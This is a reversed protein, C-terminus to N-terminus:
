KKDVLIMVSYAQYRIWKNSGTPLSDLKVSLGGYKMKADKMIANHEPSAKWADVIMKALRDEFTSDTSKVNKNIINCIEGLKMYGSGGAAAYRKDFTELGKAEQNHSLFGKKTQLYAAQTEAGKACPSHWELKPAKLSDRYKNILDFVKMELSTQALSALSLFICLIASAISKM